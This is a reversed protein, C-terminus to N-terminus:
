DLCTAASVMTENSTKTRYQMMFLILIGLLDMPLIQILVLIKFKPIEDYRM